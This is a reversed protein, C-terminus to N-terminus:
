LNTRDTPRKNTVYGRIEVTRKNDKPQREVRRTCIVDPSLVKFVQGSCYRIIRPTDTDIVVSQNDCFACPSFEINNKM